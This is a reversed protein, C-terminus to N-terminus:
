LYGELSLVGRVPKTVVFSVFHLFSYILVEKVAFFVTTRLSSKGNKAEEEHGQHGEHNEKKASGNKTRGQVKPTAASDAPL